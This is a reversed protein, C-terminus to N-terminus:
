LSAASACKPLRGEGEGLSPSDGPALRPISLPHRLELEVALFQRNEVALGM